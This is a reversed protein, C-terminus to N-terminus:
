NDKSAAIIRRIVYVISIIVSGLTLSLTCLNHQNPYREDLKIGIFTGAGIIACMQIALGSFRAYSNHRDKQDKLPQNHQNHKSQKM